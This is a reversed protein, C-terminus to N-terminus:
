KEKTNENIINEVIFKRFAKMFPKLEEEFKEVVAVVKIKEDDNLKNLDIGSIYDSNENLIILDYNDEKGNKKKYNFKKTKM